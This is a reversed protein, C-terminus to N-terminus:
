QRGGKGLFRRRYLGLGALGPGFLLVAPPLPVPAAEATIALVPPDGHVPTNFLYGVTGAITDGPAGLISLEGGSLIDALIGSTNALFWTLSGTGDAFYYYTGLTQEQNTGTGPLYSSLTNWTVGSQWGDNSLWSLSFLGANIISFRGNNPQTGATPNNSNFTVSISKIVWGTPFAANLQSLISSTNFSFLTEQTRNQATTPAAIEMAGYGNAFNTDPQDSTLFAWYDTSTTFTLAAHAPAGFFGAAAVLLVTFLAIKRSLSFLRGPPGTREATSVKMFHKM